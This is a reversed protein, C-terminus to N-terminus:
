SAVRTTPPEAFDPHTNRIAELRARIAPSFESNGALMWDALAAMNELITEASREDLKEDAAIAAIAIDLAHISAYDDTNERYVCEIQRLLLALFETTIFDPDKPQIDATM